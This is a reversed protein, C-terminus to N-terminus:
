LKTVKGNVIYLGPRVTGNLRRGQLDYVTNEGDAVNEVETISVEPEKEVAPVLTFQYAEMPDIAGDVALAGSDNIVWYNTNNNNNIHVCTQIPHKGKHELIIYSHWDASYDSPSRFMLKEDLPSNGSVCKISFRKSSSDEAIVFKQTANPTEGLATFKASTGSKTLAEGKDNLILVTEAPLTVKTEAEPEDNVPVFEFIFNRYNYSNNDGQSIRTSNSTWYKNGSYGAMQIAYKGNLRTIIYTNWDASYPNNGCFNALENVYRSDHVSAISYRGNNIDKRIKWVQRNPNINDQEARWTPNDPSNNASGSGNSLYKGNYLIYYEGDPLVQDPFLDAPYEIKLDKFASIENGLTEIMFPEVYRTGARPTFRKISGPFDHDVINQAQTTLEDYSRYKEIFDAPTDSVLIEAIDTLLLAREAQLRFNLIWASLEATMTCNTAELKQAADLQRQFYERYRAANQASMDGLEAKLSQFEPTEDTRRYGHSSSYYDVHSLCFLRFADAADEPVLEYMSQAWSEAPNFAVPNWAFDALGYLAVKSAEAYEMPNSCFASVHDKINPDLGTVSGMLISGGGYDNVPYNLWIYPKRGAMDTFSKLNNVELMDVVSRGTWMIKVDSDLQSMTNMYNQLGSGGFATNYATPCVSLAGVDNHTKVFNDTLYKLYAVQQAVNEGGIDDFFLSFNRVGLEYMSEFKALAKSYQAEGISNGPHMAWVFNVKNRRAAAALESILKGEAEPYPSDWKSRHYPDDKPGYTYENMKHRGMFEFMAIRAEHSWPNGYFGEIVGRIPIEPYDTVETQQVEAAAALQLFSQAGYFQGAADTGAIIVKDPTVSLFYGQANAPIKADVDSVAESGKSGIVIEIAGDSTINLKETLIRVADADAADTGTLKYSAGATTFAVGSDSTQQRPVPTIVSAAATLTGALLTVISLIKKM